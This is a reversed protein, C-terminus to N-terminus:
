HVFIVLDMSCAILSGSTVGWTTIYRGPQSPATMDVLLDLQHGPEITSALDFLDGRKDIREGSLHQFDFIGADWKSTGTNKVSWRADFDENPALTKKYPSRSIIECRYAQPTPTKTHTSHLTPVVMPLLVLTLTPQTTSTVTATQTPTITSTIQANVTLQAFLTELTALQTSIYMQTLSLPAEEKLAGAPNVPSIVLTCGVCLLFVFLFLQKGIPKIKM